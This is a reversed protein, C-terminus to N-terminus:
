RKFASVKRHSRDMVLYANGASYGNTQNDWSFYYIRGRVFKVKSQKNFTSDYGYVRYVEINNSVVKLPDKKTYYDFSITDETENIDFSVDNNSNNMFKVKGNEDVFFDFYSTGSSGGVTAGLDIISHQNKVAYFTNSGTYLKYPIYSFSTIYGGTKNDSTYDRADITIPAVEFKVTTRTDEITYSNLPQIQGPDIQGNNMITFYLGDMGFGVQYNGPQLSIITEGHRWDFILTVTGDIRHLRYVGMFKNTDIKIQYADTVHSQCIAHQNKIDFETKTVYGSVCLLFILSLFVPLLALYIRNPKM